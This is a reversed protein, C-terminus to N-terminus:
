AYCKFFLPFFSTCLQRVFWSVELNQIGTGDLTLLWNSIVIAKNSQLDTEMDDLRTFELSTAEVGHNFHRAATLDFPSTRTFPRIIGEKILYNPPFWGWKYWSDCIGAVMTTDM